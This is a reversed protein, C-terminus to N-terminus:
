TRGRLSKKTQRREKERDLGKCPWGGVPVKKKTGWKEEKGRDSKKGTRSKFILGDV